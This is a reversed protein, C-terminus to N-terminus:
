LDGKVNSFQTVPFSPSSGGVAERVFRQHRSSRLYQMSEQLADQIQDHHQKM